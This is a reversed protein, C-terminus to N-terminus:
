IETYFRFEPYEWHGFKETRGTFEGIQNDLLWQKIDLVIGECDNIDIYVSEYETANILLNPLNSTLTLFIDETIVNNVVKNLDVRVTEIGSNDYKGYVLGVEIENDYLDKIIFTRV